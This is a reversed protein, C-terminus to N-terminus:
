PQQTAPQETRQRRQQARNLRLRWSERQDDSPLSDLWVMLQGRSSNAIYHDAKAEVAQYELRADMDAAYSSSKKAAANIFALRSRHDMTALLHRALCDRKHAEIQSDALGIAADEPLYHPTTNKM